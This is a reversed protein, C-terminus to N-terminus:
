SQPASEARTKMLDFLAGPLLFQFNYRAFSIIDGDKLLVGGSPVLVGNIRTGNASQLDKVVYGEQEIVIQAHRRSVAFDVMVVDNEKDRGISFRKISNANNGQIPKRLVFISQELPDGEVFLTAFDPRFVQTKQWKGGTPAAMSKELEGARIGSGVLAPCHLFGIFDDKSSTTALSRLTRYCAKGPTKILDDLTHDLEDTLATVKPGGVKAKTGLLRDKLEILYKVM